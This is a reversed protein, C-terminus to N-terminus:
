EEKGEKKLSTILIEIMDKIDAYYAMAFILMVITYFIVTFFGFSYFTNLYAFLLIVFLVITMKATSYDIYKNKNSFYLTLYYQVILAITVSIGSGKIGILPILLVSSVSLAILSIVIIIVNLYSKQSIEIGSTVTWIMTNLIPNFVLFPILQAGEQEELKLLIARVLDMDRKM